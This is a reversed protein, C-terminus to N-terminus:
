SSFRQYSFFPYPQAYPCRRSEPLDDASALQTYDRVAQKYERLKVAIERETNQLAILSPYMDKKQIASYEGM